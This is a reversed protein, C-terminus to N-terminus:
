RIYKTEWYHARDFACQIVIACGGILWCVLLLAFILQPNTM